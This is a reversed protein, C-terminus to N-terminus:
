KEATESTNPSPNVLGAEQTTPKAKRTFKSLIFEQAMANAMRGGTNIVLNSLVIGVGRDQPPFYANSLSSSVLDGGISSANFQRHGNDGKCVFPASLAHLARSQFSGTGQYFYRPDQHLLSPLIAGGVMINTFSGAFATGFRQGYGKMGQQFSPTDAAQYIGALAVDGLISIADTSAKFALEYKLRTTLPVPHPDYVIYFNPIIGLVRQEEAASVQQRALQEVTMAVVTTEVASINLRIGDLMLAQGPLLTVPSSTWPTFGPAEVTVTYTVSPDLNTFEFWGADDATRTQPTTGAPGNLLIIAAPVAADQTDTAAGHISARQASPADPTQATASLAFVSLALVCFLSPIRM